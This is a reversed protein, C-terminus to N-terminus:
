WKGKSKNVQLIAISLALTAFAALFALLIALPLWLPSFVWLWSIHIVGALKLAILLAAIPLLPLSVTLSPKKMPKM